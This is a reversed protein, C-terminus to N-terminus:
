RRRHEALRRAATRAHVFDTDGAFHDALADIFDRRAAGVDLDDRPGDDDGSRNHVLQWAADYLNATYVNNVVVPHDNHNAGVILLDALKDYHDRRVLKYDNGAADHLVDIDNLDINFFIDNDGTRDDDHVVHHDHVAAHDDHHYDHRHLQGTRYEHEDGREVM